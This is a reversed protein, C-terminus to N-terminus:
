NNKICSAGRNRPDDKSFPITRLRGPTEALFSRPNRPLLLVLCFSRDEFSALRVWGGLHCSFPTRVLRSDSAMQWITRTAALFLFSGFSGLHWIPVIRRDLLSAFCVWRGFQCRSRLCSECSSGM